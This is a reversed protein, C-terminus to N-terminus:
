HLRTDPPDSGSRLIGLKRMLSRLTNPKMGLIEAAGNTGEVRWHVEELTALIHERQLDEMRVRGGTLQRERFPIASTLNGPPADVSIEAWRSRSLIVAREIANELERVNGPWSHAQLTAMTARSVELLPRGLKRCHKQVFHATLVPIDERRERLPPVTIPFISIRYWLDQRFRGAKVEANLDRNSAVILRIDAKITANSGVREFERDQVTRLLKGQLELPLEGIEDLFLTGGDAIEFRGLRRAAAGTFAGKEHGFLESEVLTPPIAACNLTVLPRARRPSQDHIVQALLSKGVGTEGLLLVTSPTSAVQRVRTAVSTMVESHGLIGEMGARAEERLYANDVELQARLQRNDELARRLEEESQKRATTDRMSGRVGLDRAGSVVPGAVVDTWRVEGNKTRIRCEFTVTRKGGTALALQSEWTSRDAEIVLETMLERRGLFEAGEYGTLQLSSPSVYAFTGDPRIWFAVDAAYEAVTRYREEARELSAQARRRQVRNTLLAAILASQMLILVLGGVVYPWYEGWLSPARFMVISFAPLRREDLNWRKLQRADFLNAQSALERIPISSPREGLLVRLGINGAFQGHRELSYVYGGVAGRGLYQDVFVYVPANAAASLQSVVNHPVFTRGAGDAFMTTYLVASSPPLSSVRELLSGLPLDTLYEVRVRGEFERLQQRAASQLQRDFASTGGVVFVQRIDPQLRLAVDLTGSFNRHVLLGTVDSGIATEKLDAADAGCIVVPVGPFIAAGHRLLFRVAPGMVGVILDLKTAAYKKSYYERLIGEYQEDRFQSLNMSESYFNVNGQLGASLTSRLNEDLVALGPLTTNEDYLLLVRKHGPAQALLAPSVLVATVVHLGILLSRGPIAPM